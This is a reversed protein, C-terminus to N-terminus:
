VESRMVIHTATEDVVSFGLRRYIDRARENERLVQLRVPMGVGKASEVVEKVLQTGLGRGRWDSTLQIEDLVFADDQREIAILGIDADDVTLIHSIGPNWREAFLERQLAEDWSGFQREVVDFYAERKLQYAWERDEETAPRLQYDM